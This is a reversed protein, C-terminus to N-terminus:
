NPWPHGILRPLNVSVNGRITMMPIVVNQNTRQLEGKYRFVEIRRNKFTPVDSHLPFTGILQFNESNLVTRVIGLGPIPDVSEIAAYRIGWTQFFRLVEEPTALVTEPARGLNSVVIQKERAVLHRKEPDLKRSFFIFDGDLEGQFYVVDSEPLSYIFQAANEIGSLQPRQTRLGNILLVLALAGSAVIALTRRVCVAELAVLALYILPPIWLM